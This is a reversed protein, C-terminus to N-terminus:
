GFYRELVGRYIKTLKELDAMPTREDVQHMTQGVLGFEIVPCYSSIFRADSTGGSTSLEPRRGTIEEIAAVALDTFPGPQTVFVNSNSPMWDIHARIRNGCAKALREDVLQRLSEQTHNDNYRINFKARAQGPIVNSATNGVDVTTFELNSAQFQASGRDLPEDSLAVILRSIDPVPNSARHPYAVHGQVGDVVLTGSQSGRRGIKIMDGLVEVNSPEGLVCHDFKEGREACWKLLKVTGNISVDEEDGTILFSISGNGNEQPKGGHDQLYQLVAAVSCAIGGKMDVAGRGYLYGDKVEGSFAGLTWAAEDGPPVVDTHGAFTIHPASSGIRAYLNDIDATGPESFTVRHVEFGATKLLNELVGLAGADAPTVSPCRVLDRAISVADSM